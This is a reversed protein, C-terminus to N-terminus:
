LSLLARKKAQFEEETLIGQDRLRALKEIEDAVSVPAGSAPSSSVAPRRLQARLDDILQKAKEFDAQQAAAFVVTNEDQTAQFLGGTGENGGLIGFQLYGNTFTGPKKFQISTISELLIEKDGKMGHLILNIMGKRKIVVRDSYVELIGTVGKAVHLPEAM